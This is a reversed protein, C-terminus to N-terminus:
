RLILVPVRSTMLMRTTHSGVLWQRIRSHGYAGMAMIAPQHAAQWTLLADEVEGEILEGAFFGGAEQLRDVARMLKRENADTDDGVMVVTGQQGSVWGHEALRALLRDGNASGDYAVMWSGPAHFTRNVVLIPTVIGRVVTEVHSGLVPGGQPHDEGHHGIVVLGAETERAKLAELLAEHRQCASLDKVGLAVMKERAGALMIKGHEMALRSRQAEVETLEELLHDRADVGIAGTLDATAPVQSRELVHLLEVPQGLREHAWASAECVSEALESGDICAVITM